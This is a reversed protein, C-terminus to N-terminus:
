ILISILIMRWDILMTPSNRRPITERTPWFATSIWL